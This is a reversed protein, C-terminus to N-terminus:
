GFYYAILWAACIATVVAPVKLPFVRKYGQSRHLMQETSNQYETAFYLRLVLIVFSVVGVIWTLVTAAFIFDM